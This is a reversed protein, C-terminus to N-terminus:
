GNSNKLRFVLCTRNTAYFRLLSRKTEPEETTLYAVGADIRDHGGFAAEDSNLILEYEGPKPVGVAYDPISRDPHLNVIFILNNREYAIVQNTDDVNLQRAPLAPLVQNEQLMTLMAQDFAQLFHYKLDERDALSWQRRAYKYSWNNGERPFDIWEPHGFENGMFNLYAEGGLSASLLRIIKHMAIGRDIVLNDDDVQMHWYMEKDMLWFALTKDGVLAQDHSEAYAVTKEKYRRNNLTHWVEHLNWEEDRKHKLLKIWYDPIGMGLRYDFGLGGEEVTRCTGPMGSMDEAISLAHPNIEKILTNALQIYTIADWEVGDKFYKDYHDFSIDGHHFYLMSTVGDFRFGDFHFEELWYRVNSLLFQQVEWKGYNFLKSDWGSHEGRGGPHFYQDESGDFSNLGESFNKVAHSHVIDMIVAIGVKHAENILYKLDEPTGFRSTPAFFNSVHYGFSGYYPHEQVAMMQLANYGLKKIRPLVVDAFERWTGVGEKEQGMGPHCEYILLSDEGPLYFGEDEWVFNKEPHWIQGAFDYTTPHQVARRIYAPIRDRESGDAGKVFVKVQMGHKLVPGNETDPLFLEWVGGAQKSMPHTTRDWGNFEGILALAQAGPAWERYRWGGQGADYSFGLQEHGSAFETLSGAQQEMTALRDKWRQYRIRVDEEYPALWPDDQILGFTTPSDAM